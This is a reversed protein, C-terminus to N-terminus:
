RHRRPKGGQLQDLPPRSRSGADTESQTSSLPTTRDGRRQEVFHRVRGEEESDRVGACATRARRPRIRGVDPIVETFDQTLYYSLALHYRIDFSEPDLQSAKELDKQARTFDRVTIYRHGRHRYLPAWDPKQEIGRSYTEIAQRYHKLSGYTLGLEVLLEINDPAEAFRAQAQAIVGRADPSGYFKKGAPSVYEPEEQFPALAAAVLWATLWLFTM